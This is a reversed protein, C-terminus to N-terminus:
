RARVGRLAARWARAQSASGSPTALENWDYAGYGRKMVSARPELIESASPLAYTSKSM